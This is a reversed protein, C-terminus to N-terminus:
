AFVLGSRENKSMSFSRKPSKQAFVPDTFEPVPSPFFKGLKRQFVSKNKRQLIQAGTPTMM